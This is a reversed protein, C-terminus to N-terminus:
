PAKSSRGAGCQAKCVTVPESLSQQLEELNLIDEMTIDNTVNGIDITVPVAHGM